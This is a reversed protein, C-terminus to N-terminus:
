RSYRRKWSCRPANVLSWYARSHLRSFVVRSLCFRGCQRSNRDSQFVQDQPDVRKVGLPATDRAVRFALHHEDFAPQWALADGAPNEPLLRFEVEAPGHFHQALGGAAARRLDSSCVDSSWDRKSRTHRRRSSFFFFFLNNDIYDIEYM